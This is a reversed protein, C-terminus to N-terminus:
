DWHKLLDSQSILPVAEESAQSIVQKLHVQPSGLAPKNSPTETPEDHTLTEVTKMVEDLQDKLSKTEEAPAATGAVLCCVRHVTRILGKQVITLPKNNVQLEKMGENMEDCSVVGLTRSHEQGTAGVAGYFAQALAESVGAWEVVCSITNLKDMDEPTPEGKAMRSHSGTVTLPVSVWSFIGSLLSTSVQDLIGTLKILTILVREM